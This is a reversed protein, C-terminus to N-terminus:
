EFAGQELDNFFKKLEEVGGQAKHKARLEEFATDAATEMGRANIEDIRRALMRLVIEWSSDQQLTRLQAKELKNLPATM